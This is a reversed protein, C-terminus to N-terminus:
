YINEIPHIIKLSENYLYFNVYLTIVNGNSDCTIGPWSCSPPGAWGLQTGWEAQMDKLAIIEGDSLAAVSNFNMLLMLMMSIFFFYQYFINM